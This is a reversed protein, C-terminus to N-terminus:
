IWMNESEEIEDTYLKLLRKEYNQLNYLIKDLKWKKYVLNKDNLDYPHIVYNNLILGRKNEGICEMLYKEDFGYVYYYKPEKMETKKLFFCGGGLDSGVESIGIKLNDIIDINEILTNQHRCDEKQNLMLLSYKKDDFLKKELNIISIINTDMVDFLIDHDSYFIIHNDKFYKNFDYYLKIKGYNKDWLVLEIDLMEKFLSIIINLKEIDINKNIWGILIIKEFNISLSLIYNINNMICKCFSDYYDNNPCFVSKIFIM